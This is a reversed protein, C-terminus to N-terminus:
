RGIDRPQAVGRSRPARKSRQGAGGKDPLPRGSGGRRQADDATQTQGAPRIGPKEADTV